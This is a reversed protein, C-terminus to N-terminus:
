NGVKGFSSTSGTIDQLCGIVIPEAVPAPTASDEVNPAAPTETAAPSNCATLTLLLLLILAILLVKKM